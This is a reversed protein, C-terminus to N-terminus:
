KIGLFEKLEREKKEMLEKTDAEIVLRVLPETGSPRINFWWDKYEVTVGDLYDQKGDKYREKINQLVKEKDETEFNIEPTKFYPSLSKATESVKGETESLAQLLILFAIFGSDSYFNDRFCFHGSVEGGMIGNNNLLGEKVNVFGVKTRVPNGGWKKIFEPVAKSCIANYAIGTNPNKKLLYKALLLITIDGRILNGMEDVLFIRDADGDFIFGFDAGTKLIEKKIQDTSGELLPNPSHNPFNGDLKFNLPILDIKLKDQILPIVKGAMGNSADVVIKFPHIKNFDVFSFIHKLYEEYIDVIKIEGKRESKLFEHKELFERIAGGKIFNNDKDVMKFGNYEKPNHSATIMAGGDYKLGGVAFYIMDTSIEGLDYVDAGESVVGSVFLEFLLDSFLRADRGVAIRKGKTYNAFARGISFAAEETLEKGVIGRVDYSKFISPNIDM